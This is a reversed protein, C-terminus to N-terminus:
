RSSGNKYWERSQIESPTLNLPGYTEDYWLVVRRALRRARDSYKLVLFSSLLPVMIIAWAVLIYEDSTTM